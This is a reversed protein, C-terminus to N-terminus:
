PAATGTWRLTLEDPTVGIFSANALPALPGALSDGLGDMQREVPWGLAVPLSLRGISYRLPRLAYGGASPVPAYDGEFYIRVAGLFSAVLGVRMTGDGQVAYVREPDLQFRNETPAFEVMSVFWRATDAASVAFSRPSGAMSSDSALGSLREALAMDPEVPPPVDRPPLLAAALVAVVIALLCLKALAAFYKGWPLPARPRKMKAVDTPHTFGTVPATPAGGRELKVGCNHCYVRTPDNDHGCATCRLGM